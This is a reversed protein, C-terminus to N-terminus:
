VFLLLKLIQHKLIFRINSDSVYMLSKLTRVSAQTCYQLCSSIKLLKRTWQEAFIFYFGYLIFSCFLELM